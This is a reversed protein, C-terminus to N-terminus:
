YGLWNLIETRSTGVKFVKPERYFVGDKTYCDETVVSGNLSIAMLGHHKLLSIINELSMTHFNDRAHDGKIRQPQFM